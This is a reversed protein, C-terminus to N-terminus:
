RTRNYRPDPRIIGDRMLAVRDLPPYSLKDPSTFERQKTKVRREPIFPLLANMAGEFLAKICPTMLAVLALIVIYALCDILVVM